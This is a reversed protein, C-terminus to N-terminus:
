TAHERSEQTEGLANSNKKQQVIRSRLSQALQPDSEEIKELLLNGADGALQNLVGVVVGVGAFGSRREAGLARLKRDFAASLKGAVEPSLPRTEALRQLVEVQVKEPLVPLLEAAADTGLQSLLLAITQPHEEELSQALQKPDTHRLARLRSHGTESLRAAQELLPRAEEEGFTETLQHLAFEAGGRALFEHALSLRDYEELVAAAIEPEVSGVGALEQELARADEEPLDRLLVGSLEEGFLSLLIAAKRRGPLGFTEPSNM